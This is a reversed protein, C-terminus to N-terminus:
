YSYEIEYPVELNITDRQYHPNIPRIVLHLAILFRCQWEILVTADAFMCHNAVQQRHSTYLDAPLLSFHPPPSSLTLRVGMAGAPLHLPHCKPSAGLLAPLRLEAHSKKPATYGIGTSYARDRIIL